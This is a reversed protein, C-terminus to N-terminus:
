KGLRLDLSYYYDHLGEGATNDQGRDKIRSSWLYAEGTMFTDSKLPTTDVLCPDSSSFACNSEELTISALELPDGAPLKPPYDPECDLICPLKLVLSVVVASIVAVAVGIYVARFDKSLCKCVRKLCSDNTIGVESIDGVEVDDTTGPM